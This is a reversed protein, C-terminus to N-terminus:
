VGRYVDGNRKAAKTEYAAGIRRYFEGFALRCASDISSHSLGGHVLAAKVNELEWDAGYAGGVLVEELKAITEYRKNAKWRPIIYETTIIFNADGKGLNLWSQALEARRKADVYPM